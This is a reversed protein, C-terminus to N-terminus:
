QLLEDKNMEVFDKSLCYGAITFKRHIASVGPGEDAQLPKGKLKM